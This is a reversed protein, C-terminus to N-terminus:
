RDEEDLESLPGYVHPEQLVYPDEALPHDRDLVRVRVEVVTGDELSRLVSEVRSRWPVREDDDVDHLVGQYPCHARDVGQTRWASGRYHRVFGVVRDFEEGHVLRERLVRLAIRSDEEGPPLDEAVTELLEETSAERRWLEALREARASM